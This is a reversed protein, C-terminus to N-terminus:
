VEVRTGLADWGRLTLERGVHRVVDTEHQKTVFSKLKKTTENEPLAHDFMAMLEDRSQFCENLLKNKTKKAKHVNRTITPPNLLQNQLFM